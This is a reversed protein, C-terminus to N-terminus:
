ASRQYSSHELFSYCTIDSYWLVTTLLRPLPQMVLEISILLCLAETMPDKQLLGEHTPAYSKM